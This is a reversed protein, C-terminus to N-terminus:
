YAECSAWTFESRDSPSHRVYRVEKMADEEVQAELTELM